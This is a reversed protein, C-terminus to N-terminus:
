WHVYAHMRVCAHEHRGWCAYACTHACPLHKHPQHQWVVREPDDDGDGQPENKKNLARKQDVSTLCTINGWLERPTMLAIPRNNTRNLDSEDHREKERHVHLHMCICVYM